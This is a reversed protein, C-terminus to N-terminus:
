KRVGADYAHGANRFGEVLEAFTVRYSMEAYFRQLGQIKRTAFGQRTEEEKSLAQIRAYRDARSPCGQLTRTSM